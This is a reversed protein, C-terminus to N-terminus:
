SSKFDLIMVLADEGDPYYRRVTGEERFSFQRYLGIAASNGVRVQLSVRETERSLYRLVADMLALGIGERRRSASVALSVIVGSVFFPLATTFYILALLWNGPKETQWLVVVLALVVLGANLASLVGLKAYLKGKWGGVIYSFVGGAGLGFLAISIALFAFHYYFVVSFIRTISLELLLTALTTL